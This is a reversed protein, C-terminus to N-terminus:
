KDAELKRADRAMELCSILDTYSPLPGSTAEGVCNAKDASAFTSWQKALRERTAQESKVCQALGLDPGGREGATAAQQAIGRCVAERAGRRRAGAFRRRVSHSAFCMDHISPAGRDEEM